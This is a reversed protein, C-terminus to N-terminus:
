VAPAPAPQTKRHSQQISKLQQMQDPTLVTSLQSRTSRQIARMQKHMDAPALATNSRLQAVQQDRSAFIPELKAAQDPTLNLERTLRMAQRHPNPAHAPAAAQPQDQQPQAQPQQAFLLSGSLIVALAAPVTARNM